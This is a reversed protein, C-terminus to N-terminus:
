TGTINRLTRETELVCDTCKSRHECTAERKNPEAGNIEQFVDNLGTENM